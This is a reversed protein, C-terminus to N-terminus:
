QAEEGELRRLLTEIIPTYCDRPGLVHKAGRLTMLIGDHAEIFRKFRLSEPNNARYIKGLVQGDPGYIHATKSAPIPGDIRYRSM